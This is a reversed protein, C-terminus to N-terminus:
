CSKSCREFEQFECEASFLRCLFLNLGHFNVM